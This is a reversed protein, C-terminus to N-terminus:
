HIAEIEGKIKHAFHIQKREIRSFHSPIQPHLHAPSLLSCGM